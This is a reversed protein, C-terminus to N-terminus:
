GGSLGLGAMQAGHLRAHDLPALDNAAMIRHLTNVYDHGRESYRTLTKALDLGDLGTGLRRMTARTKRFERYARHTNLNDIYAHVGDILRSYARVAHTSDADRDLPVLGRAENFTWQGFPANGDQAFRSTGWGSEEVAQSLALSAPVVDVRDLLKVLIARDLRAEDLGYRKALNKLWARDQKSLTGGVRVQSNLELLRGRDAMITDNVQLILPLMAKLFLAKRASVSSMTKLDRPLHDLFVRPVPQHGYRVKTLSYDLSNFFSGLKAVSKVAMGGRLNVISGGSPPSVVSPSHAEPLWSDDGSALVLPAESLEYAPKREPKPPTAVAVEVTEATTESAAELAPPEEAAKVPELSVKAAVAVTEVPVEPPLAIAFVPASRHPTEDAALLPLSYMARKVPSLAAASYMGVVCLGVFGLAFQEYSPRQRSASDKSDFSTM